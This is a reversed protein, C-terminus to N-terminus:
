QFYMNNDFMYLLIVTIMLYTVYTIPFIIKIDDNIIYDKVIIIFFFSM